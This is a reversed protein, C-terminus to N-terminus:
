RRLAGGASRRSLLDAALHACFIVLYALFQEDCGELLAEVGADDDRLSALLLAVATRQVHFSQQEGPM